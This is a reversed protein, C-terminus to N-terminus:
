VYKYIFWYFTHLEIKWIEIIIMIMLLFYNFTDFSLFIKSINSLIEKEKKAEIQYVVILNILHTYKIIFIYWIITIQFSKELNFKIYPSRAQLITLFFFMSPKFFLIMEFYLGDIYLLYYFKICDSYTIFDVNILLFFKTIKNLYNLEYYFWFLLYILYDFLNKM